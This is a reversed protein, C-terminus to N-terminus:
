ERDVRLKARIRRVVRGDPLVPSGDLRDGAATATAEASLGEVNGLAVAVLPAVIEDAQLRLAEASTFAPVVLGARILQDADRLRARLTPATAGIGEAM